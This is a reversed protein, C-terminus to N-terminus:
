KSTGGTSAIAPLIKCCAERTTSFNNASRAGIVKLIPNVWLGCQLHVFLMYPYACASSFHSYMVITSILSSGYVGAINSAQKISLNPPLMAADVLFQLMKRKTGSGYPPFINSKTDVALVRGLLTSRTALVHSSATVCCIGGWCCVAWIHVHCVNYMSGEFM